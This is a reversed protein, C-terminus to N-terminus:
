IWLGPQHSGWMPFIPLSKWWLLCFVVGLLYHNVYWTVLMLSLVIYVHRALTFGVREEGFGASWQSESRASRAKEECFWDTGGKSGDKCEKRCLHGPGKGGSNLDIERKPSTRLVGTRTVPESLLSVVNLTTTLSILFPRITKQQQIM